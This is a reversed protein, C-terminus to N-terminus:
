ILVIDVNKNVTVVLKIKSRNACSVISVILFRSLVGSCTPSPPLTFHLSMLPQHFSSFAASPPKSTPQPNRQHLVVGCELPPFCIILAM